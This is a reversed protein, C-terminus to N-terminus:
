PRRDLSQLRRRAADLDPNRQLAQRYSQAALDIQNLEEQAIGRYYYSQSDSKELRAAHDFDDAAREFEGMRLYALGRNTHALNFHPNVRLSESYARVADLYEGRQAHVIGRWFPHRPDNFGSRFDKLAMEYDGLYYFSIGRRLKADAFDPWLELADTFSEVAAKLDDMMRYAVGRHFLATYQRSDRELLNNCDEIAAEYLRQKEEGETHNALAIQAAARLVFVGYNEEELLEKDKASLQPPGVDSQEGSGDDAATQGSEGAPPGDDGQPQIDSDAPQGDDDSTDIDSDAPQGDDDSTDIDSDAPQSGDDSTDIDSDAPQSGTADSNAEATNDEGHQEAQRNTFVADILITAIEISDKFHQVPENETSTLDAELRNGQEILAIALRRAYEWNVPDYQFAKKLDDLLADVNRLESQALSRDFHAEALEQRIIEARALKQQESMEPSLEEVNAADLLEIARDLEQAGRTINDESDTSGLERGQIGLNVLASGYRRLYKTETPLLAIANEFDELAERYNGMDMHVRGREEFIDPVQKTFVAAKSLSKLALEFRGLERNARGHYYYAPVYRPQLQIARSFYVIAEAYRKQDILQAGFRTAQEWEELTKEDATEDTSETDDNTTDPDTESDLEKELDSTDQLDPQQSVAPNAWVFLAFALLGSLLSIQCSLVLHKRPFM